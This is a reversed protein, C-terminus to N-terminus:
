RKWGADWVKAKAGLGTGSSGLGGTSGMYEVMGRAYEIPVGGGREPISWVGTKMQAKRFLRGGDGAGVRLEENAERMANYQRELELERQQRVKSRYLQWARHITWHRLYRNRSFRLPRPTLTTPHYLFFRILAMGAAVAPFALAGIVTQMISSTGDIWQDGREGLIQHVHGEPQDDIDQGLQVELVVGPELEGEEMDQAGPIEHAQGAGDAQTEEAPQGHRPRVEELWKKNLDCFAKHYCWNYMTRMAPLCAFVTSPRPPWITMDLEFKDSLQTSLLFLTGGPLIFEAYHTRAFILNIPIFAYAFIWPKRSARYFIQAADEPGFVVYVSQFGHIWAGAYFTGLAAVGLGPLVMRGMARDITRYGDVVYSRPRSIKIESKCQPCQIQPKKRKSNNKTHELDAVWDLLCSEHATLSCKCPSRWIPPNNPDDESADSMCIWCKKGFTSTRSLAPPRTSTNSEDPDRPNSHSREMPAGEPGQSDM